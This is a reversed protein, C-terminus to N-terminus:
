HRGRHHGEFAVANDEVQEVRRAVLIEALVGIARQRRHIGGNHHDVGGPMSFWVRLSNSTQRRRSMGIMVKM